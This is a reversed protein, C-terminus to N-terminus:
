DDDDEDDDDDGKRWKSWSSFALLLLVLCVGTAVAEEGDYQHMSGPMSRTSFLFFLKEEFKRIRVMIRYLELATSKDM